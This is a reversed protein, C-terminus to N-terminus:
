VLAAPCPIAAERGIRIAEDLAPIVADGESRLHTAYIGGFAAAESALAILEEPSHEGDSANSHAHLDAHRGPLSRRAEGSTTKQNTM